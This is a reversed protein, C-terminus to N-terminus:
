VSTLWEERGGNMSPLITFAFVARSMRVITPKEHTVLGGSISCGRSFSSVRM